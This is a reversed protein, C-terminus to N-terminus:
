SIRLGFLGYSPDPKRSAGIVDFLLAYEPPRGRTKMKKRKKGTSSALGFIDEAM